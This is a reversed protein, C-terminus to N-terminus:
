LPQSAMDNNGMRFSTIVDHAIHIEDRSQALQFKMGPRSKLEGRRTWWTFLLTLKWLKSNLTKQLPLLSYSFASILMPYRFLIVHFYVFSTGCDYWVWSVEVNWHLERQRGQRLLDSFKTSNCKILKLDKNMTATGLVALVERRRENWRCGSTTFTLDKLLKFFYKNSVLGGWWSKAWFWFFPGPRRGPRKLVKIYNLKVYKRFIKRCKWSGTFIIVM